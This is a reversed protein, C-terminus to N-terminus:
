ILTYGGDIVMSQGTIYSSAPSALLLVMGLLDEPVGMRGMPILSEWQSRLDPNADMFQRTMDSLTYGPSLANVRIGHAAWEVALSRALHIVAAKSANYSAQHQPINVIEGSMSAILILSGPRGERLLRKAVSQCAYFTGNLNIDLVRRWEEPAVDASPGWSTVGAATILIDPGAIGDEVAQVASEVAAADTVDTRVGLASVGFDAAIRAAEDDVEPLLDLLAISAGQAALARAMALGLGRGGGTVVATRGACQM